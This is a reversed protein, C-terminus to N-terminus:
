VGAMRKQLEKRIKTKSRSGSAIINKVSLERVLDSLQFAQELRKEGTMTRLIAAQDM